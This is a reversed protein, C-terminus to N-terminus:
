RSKAMVAESNAMVAQRGVVSMLPCMPWMEGQSPRCAGLSANLLSSLVRCRLLLKEPTEVVGDSHLEYAKVKPASSALGEASDEALSTEITPKAEDPTLSSSFIRLLSAAAGRLSFPSKFDLELSGQASAGDEAEAYSGQGGPSEDSIRRSSSESVPATSGAGSAAPRWAGDATGGGGPRSM